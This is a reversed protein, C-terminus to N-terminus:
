QTTITITQPVKTKSESFTSLFFSSVIYEYAIMTSYSLNRM